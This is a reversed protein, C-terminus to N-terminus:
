EERVQQKGHGNGSMRECDLGTPTQRMWSIAQKLFPWILMHWYQWIEVMRLVDIGQVIGHEITTVESSVVM